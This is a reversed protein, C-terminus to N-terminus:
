VCVCLCPLVERFSHAARRLHRQRRLVCCVCFIFMWERLPILFRSRLILAAASIHQSLVAVPIPLRLMLISKFPGSNVFILYLLSRRAYTCGNLKNSSSHLVLELFTSHILHRSVGLTTSTFSDVM